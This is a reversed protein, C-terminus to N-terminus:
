WSFKRCNSRRDYSGAAYYVHFYSLYFGNMISSIIEDQKTYRFMNIIKKM